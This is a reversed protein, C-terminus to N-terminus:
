RSEDADQKVAVPAVQKIEQEVAQKPSKNQKIKDRYAKKKQAQIKKYEKEGLEESLKARYLAKRIGEPSKQNSM